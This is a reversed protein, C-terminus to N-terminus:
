VFNNRIKKAVSPNEEFFTSLKENVLSEVIGKTIVEYLM